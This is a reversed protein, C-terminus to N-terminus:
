TNKILQIIKNRQLDTNGFLEINGMLSAKLRLNNRTEESLTELKALTILISRASLGFRKNLSAVKYMQNLLTTSKIKIPDHVTKCEIVFPQNKYLVLVDIENDNMASEVTHTPNIEKLKIGLKIYKDELNLKRKISLYIYQEFWDGYLNGNISGDQNKFELPLKQTNFESKLLYQWVNNCWKDSKIETKCECNMGHLNLYEEAGMFYTFEIFEASKNSYVKEYGKASFPVYYFETNKRNSFYYWMGISMLKTGGTVNVLYTAEERNLVDVETYKSLNQHLDNESVIVKTYRESTIGATTALTECKGKAEMKQTTIFVYHDIDKLEKILLYNPMPQDSITSILIRM